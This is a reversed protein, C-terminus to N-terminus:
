STMYQNTIAHRIVSWLFYNTPPFLPSSSLILSSDKYIGRGAEDKQKYEDRM